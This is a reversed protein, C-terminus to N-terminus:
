GLPRRITPLPGLGQRSYSRGFDNSQPRNGRQLCPSSSNSRRMRGDAQSNAWSVHRLLGVSTDFTTQTGESFMLLGFESLFSALGYWKEVEHIQPTEIPDRKRMQELLDEDLMTKFWERTEHGAGSTEQAIEALFGWSSPITSNEPYILLTAVQVAQACTKYLKLM